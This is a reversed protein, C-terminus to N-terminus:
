NGKMNDETSNGDGCDNEPELIHSCVRCPSHSDILDCVRTKENALITLGLHM